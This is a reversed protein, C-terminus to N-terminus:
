ITKEGLLIVLLHQNLIPIGSVDKLTGFQGWTYGGAIPVQGGLAESVVRAEEGPQSQLLLRWASDVLVLALCPQVSSSIRYALLAQRAAQRAAELCDPENGVLLHAIKGEPTTTNMRLSGDSETRIASRVLWQSEEESSNQEIGLPYMRVLSNLPPFCWDRPTRGFLRAYIETPSLNELSRIWPGNSRTVRYYKGVPRWGHAAGIGVALKGSILAGSLGGSGTQLGGIQYTLGEFIDAESLCGALSIFRSMPDQHSTQKYLDTLLEGIRDSRGGLGDGAILFLGGAEEPHLTQILKQLALSPDDSSRGQGIVPTWAAHAQIENGALLVVVISRECPGTSILPTSTTFGFLPLNGL